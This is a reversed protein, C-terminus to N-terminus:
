KFCVTKTLKEWTSPNAKYLAAIKEVMRLSLETFKDINEEMFSLIDNQEKQNFGLNRLMGSDITQKIKIMYERKTKIKLDLVLSRSELASLHPSNKSNSNIMERFPLNTLFIISGEFDFYRPIEEGDQDEFVKESGWGIRRVPKL